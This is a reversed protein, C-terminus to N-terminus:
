KRFLYKMFTKLAKFNRRAEDLSLLSQLTKRLIYSVRLYFARRAYSCFEVLDQATLDPRSVVTSHLGDETLWESFNSTKLYGHEAAWTYAKTGPYPILPYFQATDLDLKKAFALTQKMTERTEGPNGVMFCGHVLLKAKRANKAYQISQQVRIGKNINDLIKQTGSEFGPIILRCGAAKMLQMTELDLNVRANAWWKVKKNIGKSILRDCINKVRAINATFTDDEIGVEKVDPFNELIYEFEAVVNEASRL